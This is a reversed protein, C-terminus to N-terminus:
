HRRQNWSRLINKDFILLKWPFFYPLWKDAYKARTCAYGRSPWYINESSLCDTTSKYVCIHHLFCIVFCSPTKNSILGYSPEDRSISPRQVWNSMMWMISAIYSVFLTHSSAWFKPPFDHMTTDLTIIWSNCIAKILKKILHGIAWCIHLVEWIVLVYTFMAVMVCFYM